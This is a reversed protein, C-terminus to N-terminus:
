NYRVAPTTPAPSAQYVMSPVQPASLQPAQLHPQPLLPPAVMSFHSSSRSPPVPYHSSSRSPPRNLTLKAREIEDRTLVGDHNTDLMDFVNQGHARQPPPQRNMLPLEEVHHANGNVRMGRTSSKKPKSLLFFAAIAALCCLLALGLLCYLIWWGWSDSSGTTTTTFSVVDYVAALPANTSGLFGAVGGPAPTNGNEQPPCYHQIYEGAVMTKAKMTSDSVGGATTLPYQTQMPNTWYPADVWCGGTGYQWYQCGIESYCFERCRQICEDELCSHFIGLPYLGQIDWNTMKMLVRVEGHQLRQGAMVHVDSDGKRWRCDKGYGLWCGSYGSQNTFQWVPCRAESHCYGACSEPTTFQKMEFLQMCKGPWGTAVDQLVKVKWCSLLEKNETQPWASLRDPQKGSPWANNSEEATAGPFGPGPLETPVYNSVQAHAM